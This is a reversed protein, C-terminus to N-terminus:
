APIHRQCATPRGKSLCRFPVIAYLVIGRTGPSATATPVCTAVIGMVRRQTEPALVLAALITLLTKARTTMGSSCARSPAALAEGEGDQSM